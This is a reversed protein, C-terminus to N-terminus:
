IVPKRTDLSLRQRCANRRARQEKERNKTHTTRTSQRLICLTTSSAGPLHNLMLSLSNGPVYANTLPRSITRYGIDDQIFSSVLRYAEAESNVFQRAVCSGLM